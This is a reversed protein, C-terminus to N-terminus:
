KIKLQSIKEKLIKNEAELEEIRLKYFEEIPFIMLLRYIFFYKVIGGYM